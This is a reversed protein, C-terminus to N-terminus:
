EGPKGAPGIENNMAAAILAAGDEADPADSFRAFYRDGTTSLMVVVGDAHRARRVRFHSDTM